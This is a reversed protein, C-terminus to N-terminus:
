LASGKASESIGDPAVLICTVFRDDVEWNEASPYLYRIQLSSSEYESGVYNDFRERCEETARMSLGEDGPYEAGSPESFEVDAFAESTHTTACPVVAVFQDGSPAEPGGPVESFCDGESLDSAVDGFFLAWEDFPECAEDSIARTLRPPFTSAVQGLDAYLGVGTDAVNRALAARKDLFAQRNPGVIGIADGLLQRVGSRLQRFAHRLDRAIAHGHETDPEGADELHELLNDTEELETEFLTQLHRRELRPDDEEIPYADVERDDIESTWDDIAECTSAAWDGPSVRGAGMTAAPTFAITASLVLSLLLGVSLASGGRSTSASPDM